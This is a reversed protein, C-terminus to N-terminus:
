ENSPVEGLIRKLICDIIYVVGSTVFMDLLMILWWPCIGGLMIYFPTFAFYPFAFQNLLSLGLGVWTPFCYMCDFLEGFTPSLKEMLIRFKDIIGFPGNSYVFLFSISFAVIFYLCIMM